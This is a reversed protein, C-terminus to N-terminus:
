DLRLVMVDGAALGLETAMGANLELVYQAPGESPYGPCQAVRCPRTNAAISVLELASNFYIIDLPIRTNKMWFSRPAENVFIFLMGHDQAM